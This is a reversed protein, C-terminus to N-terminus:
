NVEISKGRKEISYKNTADSLNAIMEDKLFLRIYDIPLEFEYNPPNSKFRSSINQGIGSSCLETIFNHKTWESWRKQKPDNM